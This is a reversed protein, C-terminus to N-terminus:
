AHNLVAETIAAFRKGIRHNQRRMLRTRRAEQKVEQMPRPHGIIQGSPLTHYNQTKSPTARLTIGKARPRLTRVKARRERREQAQAMIASVRLPDSPQEVPTGKGRDYIDMLTDSTKTATRARAKRRLQRRESHRSM